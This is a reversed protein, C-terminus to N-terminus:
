RLCTCSKDWALAGSAVGSQGDKFYMPAAIRVDLHQPVAVEPCGQGSDNPFTYNVLCSNKCPKPNDSYDMCSGWLRAEDSWLPWIFRVGRVSPRSWVSEGEPPFTQWFRGSHLRTGTVASAENEASQVPRTDCSSAFHFSVARRTLLPSAGGVPVSDAGRRGSRARRSPRDM